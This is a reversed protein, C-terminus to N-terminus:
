EDSVSYTFLQPRKSKRLLFLAIGTYIVFAAFKSPDAMSENISEELNQSKQMSMPLLICIDMLFHLFMTVKINGWRCYVAGLFIGIGATSVVQIIVTMPDVGAALNVFHMCGFMFGQIFIAALTGKFTDRGFYDRLINLLLGRTMLEECIGASLLIALICWVQESGFSYTVDKPIGFSVKQKEQDVQMFIQLIATISGYIMFGGSLLGGWFGNGNTTLVKKKKIIILMAVFFIFIPVACLFQAFYNDAKFIGILGAGVFQMAFYGAIVIAVLGLTKGLSPKEYQSGGQIKTEEM